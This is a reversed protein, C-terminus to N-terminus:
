SRVISDFSSARVPALQDEAVLAIHTVFIRKATFVWAGDHEAIEDDYRGWTVRAGESCTTIAIFCAKAAVSGDDQTTAVM